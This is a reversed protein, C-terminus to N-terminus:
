LGAAAGPFDERDLDARIRSGAGPLLLEPLLYPFAGRYPPLFELRIGRAAFANPQYLDRGGPANIYHSAGLASLIALIRDQGRLGAPLGLASSRLFRVPLDLMGTVLRLGQELFDPVPPLPAFLHARLPSPVARDIGAQALRADLSARADPAWALRNIRTDRAARALPLPLWSGPALECRHVRGRRPFQVDDLIVFLDSQAMLRFYGAYPFFYPQMIAVRFRM